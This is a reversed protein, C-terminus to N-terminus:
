KRLTNLDKLQSMLAEMKKQWESDGSAQAFTYHAMSEHCIGFYEKREDDAKKLDSYYLVAGRQKCYAIWAKLQSIKVKTNEDFNEIEEETFNNIDYVINKNSGPIKKWCDNGSNEASTCPIINFNYQSGVVNYKQLGERKGFIHDKDTAKANSFASYGQEYNFIEQKKLNDEDKYEVYNAKDLYEAHDGAAAALTTSLRNKTRSSPGSPKRPPPNILREVLESKNGRVKLGKKRLLDRLAECTLSRLDEAYIHM